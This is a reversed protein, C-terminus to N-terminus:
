ISDDVSEFNLEVGFNDRFVGHTKKKHPNDLEERPIYLRPFYLLYFTKIDSLSKDVTCRQCTCLVPPSVNVCM